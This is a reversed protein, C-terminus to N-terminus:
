KLQGPYGDECLEFWVYDFRTGEAATLGHYTGHPTFSIDGERFPVEKGDVVYTFESGPLAIYWQELENHIHQGVVNPGNGFVAGMSLRGLYRHEILTYSQITDDKFDEVYTWSQSVPRFRPLKIRSEAMNKRDYDSMTAIIHVFELDSGAQVFFTDRDFNPVFVSVETINFAQDLMGVYGTGATFVLMQCRDSEAFLGTTWKAGAQLRVRFMEVDKYAGKLVPICSVGDVFSHQEDIQRHFQIGAM